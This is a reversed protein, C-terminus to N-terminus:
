AVIFRAAGDEVILVAHVSDSWTTIHIQYEGVAEALGVADITFRVFEEPGDGGIDTDRNWVWIRSTPLDQRDIRWSGDGLITVTASPHIIASVFEYVQGEAVQVVPFSSTDGASM